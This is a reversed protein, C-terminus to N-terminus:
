LRTTPMERSWLTIKAFARIRLFEPLRHPSLFQYGWRELRFRFSQYCLHEQRKKTIMCHDATSVTGNVIAVVGNHTVSTSVSVEVWEYCGRVEKPIPLAGGIDEKKAKTVSAQADVGSYNVSKHVSLLVPSNDQFFGVVRCNSTLLIRALPNAIVVIVM